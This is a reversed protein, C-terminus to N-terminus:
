ILAQHHPHISFHALYAAIDLLILREHPPKDADAALENLENALSLHWLLSIFKTTRSTIARDGRRAIESLVVM